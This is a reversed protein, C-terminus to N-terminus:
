NNNLGVKIYPNPTTNTPKEIYSKLIFGACNNAANTCGAPYPVYLYNSASKDTPNPVAQAATADAVPTHIEISHGEPDVLNAPDIGFLDSANFTAPYADKENYYTELKNYISNIANVRQTDRRKARAAQYNVLVLSSLIIIIVVMLLLEPVTFGKASRLRQFM